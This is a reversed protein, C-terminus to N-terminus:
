QDFLQKQCALCMGSLLWERMPLLDGGCAAMEVLDVKGNGFCRRTHQLAMIMEVHAGSDAATKPEGCEMSHFREHLCVAEIRYAIDSRGVFGEEQALSECAHLFLAAAREEATAAPARSPQHEQRPAPGLPKLNAARVARAYPDVDFIVGIRQGQKRTVTAKQGNLHTAKRLGLVIVRAGVRHPTDKVDHFRSFTELSVAKDAQRLWKLHKTPAGRQEAARIYAALTQPDDADFGRDYGEGASSPFLEIETGAEYLWGFIRRDLMASEPTQLIEEGAGNFIQCMLVRALMASRADRLNPPEAEPGAHRCARVAARLGEDPCGDHFFKDVASFQADLADMAPRAPTAQLFVTVRTQISTCRHAMAIAHMSKRRSTARNPPKPGPDGYVCGPGCPGGEPCSANERRM